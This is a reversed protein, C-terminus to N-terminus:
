FKRKKSETKQLYRNVYTSHLIWESNSYVMFSMFDENIRPILLQERTYGGCLWFTKKHISKEQNKENFYTYEERRRCVTFFNFNKFWDLFAYYRLRSGFVKLPDFDFHADLLYKSNYIILSDEPILLHFRTGYCYSFLICLEIFTHIHHKSYPPNSYIDHFVPLSNIQLREYFDHKGHLVNRFHSSYLRKVTGDSYFPDFMRTTMFFEDTFILKIISCIDDITKPHTSMTDKHILEPSQNRLILEHLPKVNIWNLIVRDLRNTYPLPAMQQRSVLKTMQHEAM